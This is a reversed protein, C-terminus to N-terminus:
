AAPNRAFEFTFANSMGDEGLLAILHLFFGGPKLPWMRRAASPAFM